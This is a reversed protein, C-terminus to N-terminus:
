HCCSAGSAVPDHPIFVAGASMRWVIVAVCAFAIGRQIGTMANPSFRAGIWGAQTQALMILPITGLAFAGMFGIGALASGSLASIGLVMYLPGCPLFVTGLGLALAGFPRGASAKGVATSPFFKRVWSPPHFRKELGFGIILFMVIMAWPLVHATTGTFFGAISSGLLGALAGGLMYSILRGGHYAGISAIRSRANPNKVCFSCALPGCMGLCHVSTIAGAVFAALPTTIEPLDM